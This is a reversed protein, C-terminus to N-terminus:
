FLWVGATLLAGFLAHLGATRADLDVPPAAAPRNRCLAALRVAAPASLAALAAGPAPPAASRTAAYLAVAVLAYPALVLARYYRASRQAGLRVATTISGRVRDRGADRWNNAHLIATALCALPLSWLLVAPRFSGAFLVYAGVTPLVGFALFIAPDGAGVYKLGVRPVSYAAGLLIGALGLVLIALGGARVLAAFCVAGAALFATASRRVTRAGLWGRVLAGSTPVVERDVGSRFDSYDNWLNAASHFCVVAALATWFLGAAPAAGDRVALAAGLLVPLVSATYAFPRLATLWVRLRGPRPAGAAAEAEPRM